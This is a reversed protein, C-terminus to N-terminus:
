KDNETSQLLHALELIEASLTELLKGARKRYEPSIPYRNYYVHEQAVKYSMGLEKGLWAWTRNKLFKKFLQKETM